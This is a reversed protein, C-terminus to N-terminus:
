IDQSVVYGDYTDTGTCVFGFTDRKGGTTTLTPASGGAWKITSFWTVTRSGTGDQTISIIFKRGDTENSIAITINGAPMTIRFEQSTSVDLTDTSAGAPTSTVPAVDGAKTDVYAKISQQSAVSVDSDGSLTDQDLFAYGDILDGDVNWKAIYDETGATGTVLDDDSGTINRHSGTQTHEVLIGDVIDNLDDSNWIYEIVTGASHAQETSNDISRTYSTLNAGSITGTIREVGDADQKVGDGDVRNFTLTIETDTPLGTASNLTITDGTGTGIGSVLTTAFLSKAKRFKDTQAM